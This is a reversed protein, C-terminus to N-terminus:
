RQDVIRLIGTRSMRNLVVVVVGGAFPDVGGDFTDCISVTALRTMPALAAMPATMATTPRAAISAAKIRYRRLSLIWL